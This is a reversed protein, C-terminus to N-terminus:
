VKPVRTIAGTAGFPILNSSKLKICVGNFAYSEELTTAAGVEDTVGPVVVATTALNLTKTEPEAGVCGKFAVDSVTPVVPVVLLFSM